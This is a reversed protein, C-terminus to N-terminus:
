SIAKAGGTQSDMSNVINGIEKGLEQALDDSACRLEIWGDHSFRVLAEGSLDCLFGDWNFYLSLIILSVLSLRQTDDFVHVPAEILLRSEGNSKRFDYFLEMHDNYIGWDTIMM